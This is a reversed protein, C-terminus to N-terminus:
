DAGCRASQRARAAGGDPSQAGPTNGLQMIAPMNGWAMNNAVELGLVDRYFALSKDLDQVIHSFNGVGVVPSATKAAAANQAGVPPQSVITVTLLVAAVPHVAKENNTDGDGPSFGRGV